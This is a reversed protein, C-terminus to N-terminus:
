PEPPLHTKASGGHGAAGSFGPDEPQGALEPIRSPKQPADLCAVRPIGRWRPCGARSKAVLMSEVPHCRCTERCLSIVESAKTPTVSGPLGGTFKGWQEPHGFSYSSSPTGRRRFLDDPRVAAALRRDSRAGLHSLAVVLDAEKEERLRSVWKRSIEIPVAFEVDAITGPWQIDVTGLTTLGFVAVRVGEFERILYPKAGEMLEEAGRQLVNATLWPFSSERLARQLVEPGFDFEHNGVAMADYGLANMGEIIGMGGFHWDEPTGHITDGSDLLLVHPLEDRIEEVLTGVRTLGHPKRGLGESDGPYYVQGHLDATHLLTILVPDEHQREDGPASTAGLSCLAAIFLWDRM